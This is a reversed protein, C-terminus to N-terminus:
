GNTPRPERVNIHNQRLRQSKSLGSMKSRWYARRATTYRTFFAPSTRLGVARGACRDLAAKPNMLLSEETAIMLGNPLRARGDSSRSSMGITM